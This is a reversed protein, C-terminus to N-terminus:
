YSLGKKQMYANPNPDRGKFKRFLNEPEDTGGKSLIEERFRKATAKDFLSTSKFSQFADADLVEAWVYSYYGSAYGGSFVHNFYTSRYRPVIESILHINKMSMNEFTNVEGEFPKQLTHWDMDLYSAALYETLTFGLNFRGSAQMKKILNDPIPKETKYHRAYSKLVEPESAWNEMIQSPMEVFDRPVATGSLSVYQCQSFLGHMAHGCEHFLTEVEDFSLLAPQSATPKTFNFNVSIVPIINKGGEFHQKRFSTMWAGGQKSPRPFFDMYLIGILHGNSEQVEYAEVDKQYVPIQDNKKFQIGYLKKLVQFLGNRADNLSFYPRLESENLDYKEKRLKETYYWWDWPQLATKQGDTSAIEQLRKAENEALQMAKPTIQDLLAFVHQPMKAMSEELVYHAYTPYGLLNAKELRLNATKAIISRNNNENDNDGRMIYGLFMKKRLERNDSFQLFPILSPKDLTFLWGENKGRSKAAEAAAEVVSEPLGSLDSKTTIHLEFANNDALVHDGFQLSLVSLKGNIEKLREKDTENLKAGGRVFKKYVKKLLMKQETNLSLTEKEKYVKEIRKFLSQNMLINDYHASLRPAIQTALRQLTDNTNASLINEFITNTRKLLKGSFEFAEITNAFTAPEQNNVISSVEQNQEKIGESFANNYDEATIEAFPPVQFPTQFPQVLPNTNNMSQIKKQNSRCATFFLALLMIVFTFKKM